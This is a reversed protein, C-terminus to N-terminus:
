LPRATQPALAGGIRSQLDALHAQTGADRAARLAGPLRRAVGVLAQRSLAQTERPLGLSDLVFSPLLAIAMELDAFRRQLERHTPAIRATGLDDFIAANTWGFLDALTMTDGPHAVKLSQDAIRALNPPSFMTAITDDQIEAVVERLPFDPRRVDGSDWHFGFRTPTLENLLQPSYSFASASFVYRDLLDFARRQEVRSISRFPPV